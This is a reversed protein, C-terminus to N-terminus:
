FLRNLTLLIFNLMYFKVNQPLPASCVVLVPHLQFKNPRYLVHIHYTVYMTHCPNLINYITPYKLVLPTQGSIM